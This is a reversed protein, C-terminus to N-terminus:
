QRKKAFLILILLIFIFFIVAILMIVFKFPLVWFYIIEQLDRKSNNGYELVLKAKYKGFGSGPNWIQDMTREQDPMIDKQSIEINEIEEARRDYIRLSGTIDVPVNGVNKLKYGFEAPFKFYINKYSRFGSLEATEKIGKKIKVRILLSTQSYPPSVTGPDSFNKGESFIVYAYYTGARADNKVKILLEKESSEGSALRIVGRFVNIWSALFEPNEVTGTASFGNGEFDQVLDFVLPTVEAYRNNNNKIKVSKEILEGPAAELDIVRPEVFVGQPEIARAKFGCAYFFCICISTTFFIKLFIPKM